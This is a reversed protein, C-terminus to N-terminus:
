LADTGFGYECVARLRWFSDEEERDGGAARERQRVLNPRRAQEVVRPVTNNAWVVLSAILVVYQM